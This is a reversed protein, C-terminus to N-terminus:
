LSSAARRVSILEALISVAIEPPTKGGIRLGVPGHIRQLDEEPIGEERLARRRLEQTRKGGIQGVYVCGARLAAALAPTDLKTDHALVVVSWFEDVGAEGFGEAPWTRWVRRADPFRAPDAFTARPDFLHVAYGAYAALHCLAEAVPTGGVIALKPAPLLAEAFITAGSRPLTQFCAGEHAFLGAAIETLEDEAAPDGLTGQSSTRPRLLLHRDPQGEDCRMAFVVPAEERVAAEAALLVTPPRTVPEIWVDIEGGCSLGVTAAMEDTIGYHVLRGRQHRICDALHELLDAEVCGSSISGAIEGRENTALRAGPPRPASREVRVLTALACRM